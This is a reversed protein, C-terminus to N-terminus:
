LHNEGLQSRAKAHWHGAWRTMLVPLSKCGAAHQVRVWAHSLLFTRVPPCSQGQQRISEVRQGGLASGATDPEAQVKMQASRGFGDSYAITIFVARIPTTAPMNSGHSRPSSPRPMARLSLMCTTFSGPPHTRSCRKRRRCRIMRLRAIEARSPDSNFATLSDGEGTRGKLATGAVRGLADFVVEASHGNPDTVDFPQLVRSIMKRARKTALRM